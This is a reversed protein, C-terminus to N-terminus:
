HLSIYSSEGDDNNRSVVRNVSKLPKKRGGKKRHNDNEITRSQNGTTQGGEINRGM